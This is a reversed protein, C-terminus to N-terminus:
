IILIKPYTHRSIPTCNIVSDKNFFFTTFVQASEHFSEERPENGCDSHGGWLLILVDLGNKEIGIVLGKGSLASIFPM